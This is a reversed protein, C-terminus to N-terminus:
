NFVNGCNSEHRHHPKLQPSLSLTRVRQLEKNASSVFRVADVILDDQNDQPQVDADIM